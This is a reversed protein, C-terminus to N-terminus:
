LNVFPSLKFIDKLAQSAAHYGCMGHVGGGPPTSSSCLYVGELPTRYPSLATVPRFILQRWNSAGGSIDGGVYNANYSEMQKATAANRALVTERFGPAFREVQSEIEHTMDKESGAPVHCYAWGTQRGKPARSRDFLSQQALLVFPREPHAGNWVAQEATMIESLTGGIHVTGAKRCWRSNFPIPRELAWDIKFV